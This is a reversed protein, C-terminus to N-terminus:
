PAPPERRAHPAPAPRPRRARDPRRARAARAAAIRRGRAGKEMAVAGQLGAPLALWGLRLAPALTKSATGGYVVRDPARGQLAGIPDRDYRYEADYDDEIVLADHEHAWALLHTRREPALAAGTASQHAPTVLVADARRRALADVRLGAGDVPIPVPRLGAKEVILRHFLFSPDEMAIRRAGREALARCVLGLGQWFGTCIVMQEPTTIVGRVRGLYAALATRLPAAGRPDPHSLGGHPLDRLVRRSAALWAARPFAALDPM